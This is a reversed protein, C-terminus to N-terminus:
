NSSEYSVKLLSVSDLKKAEGIHIGGLEIVNPGLHKAGSLSYHQNVFIMSVNSRLENVSPIKGDFREHLLYDDNREIVLRYIVNMFVFSFWNSLRGFFTMEDSEGNFSVPCLGPEYPLGIRPYHWTMINISSLGIVPAKLKHAIGLMCDTNFLEVFILDFKQNLVNEIAPSNLANRCADDAWGSLLFFGLL